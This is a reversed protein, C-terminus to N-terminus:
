CSICKKKPGLGGLICQPTVIKCEKNTSITKNSSMESGNSFNKLFKYGIVALLIVIILCVILISNTNKLHNLMFSSSNSSFVSSM